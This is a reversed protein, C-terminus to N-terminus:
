ARGAASRAAAALAGHRDPARGAAQGARGRGRAATVDSAYGLDLLGLWYLGETLVAEVFVREVRDWGADSGSGYIYWAWGLPNYQYRSGYNRYSYNRNDDKISQWGLLFEDDRDNMGDVLDDVAIWDQPSSRALRALHDVVKQRAEIVRQRRQSPRVAKPAPRARSM